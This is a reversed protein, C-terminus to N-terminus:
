TPSVGGPVAAPQMFSAAFAVTGFHLSAADSASVTGVSSAAGGLYLGGGITVKSIQNGAYIDDTVGVCSSQRITKM